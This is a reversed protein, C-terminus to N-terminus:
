TRIEAQVIQDLFTGEQGIQFFVSETGYTIKYFCQMGIVAVPNVVFLLVSSLSKNGEISIFKLKYCLVGIILIIFMAIIKEFTLLALEM